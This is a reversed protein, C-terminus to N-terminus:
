LVPTMGVKGQDSHAFTNVMGKFKKKELNFCLKSHGQRKGQTINGRGKRGSDENYNLFSQKWTLM